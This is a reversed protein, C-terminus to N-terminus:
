KQHRECVCVSNINIDICGKDLLTLDGLWSHTLILWLSNQLVRIHRRSHHIKVSVSVFSQITGLGDCLFM